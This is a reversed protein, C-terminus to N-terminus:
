PQNPWPDWAGGQQQQGEWTPNHGQEDEQEQEDEDQQGVEEDEEEDPQLEAMIEM